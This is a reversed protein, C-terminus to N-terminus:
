LESVDDRHYHLFFFEGGYEYYSRKGSINQSFNPYKQMYSLYKEESLRVGDPSDGSLIRGLEPSISLDEDTLHIIEGTFAEYQDVFEVSIGFDPTRIREYLLPFTFYVIFIVCLALLFYVIIRSGEAM